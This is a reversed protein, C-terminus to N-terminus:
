PPCGWPSGGSEVTLPATVEGLGAIELRLDFEITEGPCDLGGGPLVLLTALSAGCHLALNQTFLAEGGAVETSLTVTACPVSEAGTARVRVSIMPLGQPGWLVPVLEGAAFPTFPKGPTGPGLELVVGPIEETVPESCVEGFPPMVVCGDVLCELEYDWYGDVCTFHDIGWDGDKGYDCQLGEVCAGGPYPVGDVPCSDAVESCPAETESAGSDSGASDTDEPETDDPETDDPETAGADASDADASDADASDADASDADPADADPADADPGSHADVVLDPGASDLEVDPEDVPGAEPGLWSDAGDDLASSVDVADVDVVPGSDSVEGGSGSGGTDAPSPGAGGGCALLAVTPVVLVLQCLRPSM